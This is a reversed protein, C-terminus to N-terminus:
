FAYERIGSFRVPVSQTRIADLRLLNGGSAPVERTQFLIANGCSRNAESSFRCEQRKLKIEKLTNEIFRCSHRKEKVFNGILENIDLGTGASLDHFATTWKKVDSSSKFVSALRGAVSTLQEFSMTGSAAEDRLQACLIKASELGGVLPAMRTAADEFRSFERLPVAIANRLATGAVTAIRFSNRIAASVDALKSWPSTATQIKAKIGDMVPSVKRANQVVEQITRSCDAWAKDQSKVSNTAKKSKDLLIESGDAAYIFAQKAEKGARNVEAFHNRIEAMTTKVSEIMERMSHLFTSLDAGFSISIDSSSSM